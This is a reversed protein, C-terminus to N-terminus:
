RRVHFVYYQLFGMIEMLFAVGMHIIVGGWIHRTKWAIVGLIYGGFVAGISEGLPKGFHLFAYVSVMPLISDKGMVAIMGIVFAGRFMLEVMVFDLGYFTEFVGTMAVKSMGPVLDVIWPKYRPYASLFDPTFSAAIVLPAVIALLVFYIRLDSKSFSLGYLGKTHHDYVRKLVFLPILYILTCRAQVLLKMVFARTPIDNFLEGVYKYYRLRGVISILVLLSLSKIWFERNKLVSQQGSVLLKPIAIAYYAFSYFAFFRLIAEIDTGGREVFKNQFDFSYNLAIAAILFAATFGYIWPNWDAKIHERITQLITKM